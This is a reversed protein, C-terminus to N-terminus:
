KDKLKNKLSHILSIDDPDINNQEAFIVSIWDVLHIFYFYQKFYSISEIGVRIVDHKNKEIESITIDMRKKNSSCTEGDLFIPVVCTNKFGWPIIENHNMEPILNYCAHRKSNENLQQKFRLAVGEYDPYTYIFPMKNSMKDVIESSLGIIDNQNLLLYKQVSLLEQKLSNISIGTFKCLIFLLQVISYCLMARPANNSPIVIHDISNKRSINLLEGGSCITFIKSKKDIANSLASLTEETNGSYSSAIFLTKENIFKPIAYDQNIFVPVSINDSLLNKVVVGGIASGGQGAIVINEITSIDLDFSISNAIKIADAIHNPFDYIMQKMVM